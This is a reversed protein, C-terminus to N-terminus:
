AEGEPFPLYGNSALWRLAMGYALGVGTWVMLAEFFSGDRAIGTVIGAIVSLGGAIAVFTGHGPPIQPARVRERDRSGLLWGVLRLVLVVIALGVWAVMGGIWALPLAFTGVVDALISGPALWAALGGGVLPGAAFSAFVTVLQVLPSRELAPAEPKTM